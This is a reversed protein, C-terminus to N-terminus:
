PRDSFDPHALVTHLGVALFAMCVGAAAVALVRTRRSAPVDGTVSALAALMGIPSFILPFLPNFSAPVALVACVAALIARSGPRGGM